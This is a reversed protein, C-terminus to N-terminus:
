INDFDFIRKSGKLNVGLSIRSPNRKNKKQFLTKTFCGLFCKIGTELIEPFERDNETRQNLSQQHLEASPSIFETSTSSALVM